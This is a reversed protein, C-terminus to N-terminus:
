AGGLSELLTRRGDKELALGGFHSTARAFLGRSRGSLLQKAQKKDDTPEDLCFLLMRLSNASLRRGTRRSTASQDSLACQSKTDGPMVSSPCNALLVTSDRFFGEFNAM